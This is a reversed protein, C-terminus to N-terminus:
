ALDIVAGDDTTGVAALASAIEQRGLRDRQRHRHIKESTRKALRQQDANGGTVLRCGTMAFWRPIETRQGPLRLLPCRQCTEFRSTMRARWRLHRARFLAATIRFKRRSLTGARKGLLPLRALQRASLEAPVVPWQSALPAGHAPVADPDPVHGGGAADPQGQASQLALM